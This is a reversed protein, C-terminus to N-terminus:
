FVVITDQWLPSEKSNYAPIGYQGISVYYFRDPYNSDEFFYAMGNSEKYKEPCKEGYEWNPLEANAPVPYGITAKTVTASPKVPNIKVYCDTAPIGTLFQKTIAQTLTDTPTKSFKEISQGDEQKGSSLYVYAKNGIEATKVTGTSDAPTKNAWYFSIGLKKSTFTNGDPNPAITPKTTSAIMSTPSASVTGTIIATPSLEATPLYATPMPLETPIIAPVEATSKVNKTGLLYAAGSAIIVLLIIIVSILFATTPKASPQIPAPSIVPPEPQPVPTNDM